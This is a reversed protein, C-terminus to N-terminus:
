RGELWQWGGGCWQGVFGPELDELVALGFGALLQDLGQEANGVDRELIGSVGQAAHVGLAVAQQAAFQVHQRAQRLYQRLSDESM